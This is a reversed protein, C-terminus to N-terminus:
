PSGSRIVSRIPPTASPPQRPEPESDAPQPATAHVDRHTLLCVTFSHPGPHEAQPYARDQALHASADLVFGPDERVWYRAWHEGLLDARTITWARSVGDGHRILLTRGVLGDTPAVQGRLEFSGLAGDLALGRAARVAGRYQPHEVRLPGVQAFRGGALSIRDPRILTVLGDTQISRGGPLTLTQPTGPQRNVILFEPGSRTEVVLAILDPSSAMRGVRDPAPCDFPAVPEFVTVFAAPAATNPDGPRAIRITQSRSDSAPSAEIRHLGPNLLHLRLGFGSPRQLLLQSPQLADQPQQLTPLGTDPDLIQVGHDLSYQLAPLAGPAPEVISVAYSATPSTVAIILQRVTADGETSIDRSALSAIQISSDAAYFLPYLTARPHSEPFSRLISQGAVRVQLDIAPADLAANPPGIQLWLRASSPGAALRAVGAGGLLGTGTAQDPNPTTPYAALLIQEVSPPRPNADLVLQVRANLERFRVDDAPSGLPRCAHILPLIWDALLSAVQSDEGAESAPWTGDHRFGHILVRELRRLGLEACNRDRLVLAAALLGRAAYLTAASDDIPQLALLAAAPRILSDEVRRHPDAEGLTHAAEILAPDDRLISYAIVLPLPVEHCGLWDWRATRYGSRFPPKLNAPHLIKPSRPADDHLAYDPYVQAFRLLILSALRALRPDRSQDPSDRYRVAAYLAAKALFGRAEYDRKAALYLREDPYIQKEPDVLHFPYHHFVRPRVEVVEEPITPPQGPILAVKAPFSENPFDIGCLRCTVVGPRAPSWDLTDEQESAPCAPCRCFRLGAQPPVLAALAAPELDLLSMVGPASWFRSQWADPLRLRRLPDAQPPTGPTDILAPLLALLPTLFVM